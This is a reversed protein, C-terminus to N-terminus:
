AKKWLFGEQRGQFCSALVEFVGVTVFNNEEQWMEIQMKLDGSWGGRYMSLQKLNNSARSQAAM